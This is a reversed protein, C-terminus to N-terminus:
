ILTIKANCDCISIIISNLCCVSVALTNGFDMLIATKQPTLLGLCSQNSGSLHMFVESCFASILPLLGEVVYLLIANLGDCKREEDVIGNQILDNLDNSMEMWENVSM